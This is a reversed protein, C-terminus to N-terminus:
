QTEKIGSCIKEMQYPNRPVNHLTKRKAYGYKQVHINKKLSIWNKRCDKLTGTTNLTEYTQQDKLRWEIFNQPTDPFETIPKLM